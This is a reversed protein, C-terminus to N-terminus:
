PLFDLEKDSADTSFRGAAVGSTFRDFDGEVRDAYVTAYRVIARDFRDSRGLYGAITAADGAKAHARALAWGCVGAYEVLTPPLFREIDVSVKMDRLQRVYYDASGPAEAWGLFIDSAAQMLRQGDVVREGQHAFRSEFRPTAELISRRAEKVQLFLPDTDDSLFLAIACRTGISGIGVVKIAIDQLRYRDFLQRRDAALSRRYREFFDRIFAESESSHEHFHYILPPDDVIAPRGDRLTALKPAVSESTRRRAYREITPLAGLVAANRKFFDALDAFDIRAYWVEITSLQAYYRMRERYSQAASRAADRAVAKPFNRQRAALVASTALRKLDWEWPGPLTEDFDNIDFTLNREPTGFGGFNLLHCDGCLQVIPGSAPTNSLDHAQVIASGRLFALASQAMRRYRLPVLGPIRGANSEEILKLADFSADREGIAGQTSRPCGARLAHGREYRQARTLPAESAMAAFIRGSPLSCGSVKELM